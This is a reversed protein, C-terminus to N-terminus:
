LKSNVMITKTELIISASPLRPPEFFKEIEECVNSLKITNPYM